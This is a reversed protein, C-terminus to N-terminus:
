DRLDCEDRQKDKRSPVDYKKFDENPQKKYVAIIIDYQNHKGDKMDSSTVERVRGFYRVLDGEIILDRIDDATKHVKMNEDHLDFTNGLPGYVAYGYQNVYCNKHVTDEIITNGKTLVYRKLKEM